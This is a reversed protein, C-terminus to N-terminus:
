PSRTYLMRDTFTETTTKQTHILVIRALLLWPSIFRQRLWSYIPSLTTNIIIIPPSNYVLHIHDGCTRTHGLKVVSIMLDIILSDKLSFLTLNYTNLMIIFFLIGRFGLLVKNTQKLKVAWWCGNSLIVYIFHSAWVTCTFMSLCNISM